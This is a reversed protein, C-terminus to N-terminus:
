RFRNAHVERMVVAFASDVAAEVSMYSAEDASIFHPREPMKTARFKENYFARPNAPAYNFPKAEPRAFPNGDMDCFNPLMQKAESRNIRRQHAQVAAYVTNSAMQFVASIHVVSIGHAKKLWWMCEERSLKYERGKLLGEHPEEFYDAFDRTLERISEYYEHSAM